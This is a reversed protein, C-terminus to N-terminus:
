WLYPILRWTRAQYQEYQKGFWTRLAQEEVHIRYVIAPIGGVLAIALGGWSGESLPIGLFLGMLGLYAPHRVTNYVGETVMQHTESTEVHVSYQKGLARRALIRMALGGLIFLMGLGRLIWLRAGFTTWGLGWADLIALLTAGYWFLSILWYSGQEQKEGQQQQKSLSFGREVLAWLIFGALGVYEPIRIIDM